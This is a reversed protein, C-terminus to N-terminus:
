APNLYCWVKSSGYPNDEDRLWNVALEVLKENKEEPSIDPYWNELLPCNDAKMMNLTVFFDWCNYAPIESKINSYIEMVQPVAWYPAYHKSGKRDKFYMSAVDEMAYEENYHGGSMKGYVSRMLHHRADKDMSDEVAKSVLHLTTCMMDEGKGEGYTKTLEYLTM